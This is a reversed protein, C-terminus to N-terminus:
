HPHPDQDQLLNHLYELVEVFTVNPHLSSLRFIIHKLDRPSLGFKGEYLSDNVYESSIEEFGQKLIQKSEIDLREPMEMGALYLAKELPNLNTAINALKKDNYNKTQCVRLRSM